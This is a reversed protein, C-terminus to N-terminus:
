PKIYAYGESQKEVLELVGAPVIDVFDFIKDKEIKYTAIANNCAVFKIGKGHLTVMDNINIDYNKTSDYYKVAESNALVEISITKNEIAELLNRVNSLLLQWKNMEDIHFIVKYTRM